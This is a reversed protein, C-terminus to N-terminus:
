WRSLHIGTVVKDFVVFQFWSFLQFTSHHFKGQTQATVSLPPHCQTNQAVATFKIISNISIPSIITYILRISAVLLQGLMWCNHAIHSPSELLSLLSILLKGEISTDGAKAAYFFFILLSLYLSFFDSGVVILKICCFFREM